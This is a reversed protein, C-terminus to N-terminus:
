INETLNIDIFSDFSLSQFDLSKQHISAFALSSNSKSSSLQILNLLRDKVSPLSNGIITASEEETLGRKALWWM